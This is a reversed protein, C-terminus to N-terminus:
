RMRGTVVGSCRAIVTLTRANTGSFRCGWVTSAARLALPRSVQMPPFYASPATVAVVRVVPSSNTTASVMGGRMRGSKVSPASRVRAGAMRKRTPSLKEPMAEHVRNM